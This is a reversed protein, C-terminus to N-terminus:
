LATKTKQKNTTKQPKKKKKKKKQKKNNKKKKNKKQKKKKTKKNKNKEKPFQSMKGKELCEILRQRMKTVSYIMRTNFSEPSFVFNKQIQSQSFM